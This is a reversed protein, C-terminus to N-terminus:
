QAATRHRYNHFDIRAKVARIRLRKWYSMDRLHRDIIEAVRKQGSDDDYTKCGPMLRFNGWHRPIYKIEVRRACNLIFDFDMAYHDSINYGGALDHVERHYFYAAPNCPFEGYRWGLLLTELRMGAPRNWFRLNNNEDVVKCDAMVFGPKKFTALAELAEKVAGPEYFDDVNLVGIVAGTAAATAKNLADSQGRDPGPIFRLHPHIELLAAVREVTGDTSGGDVIIHELGEAEQAIVNAVCGDIFNRSNLTPTIISIRM